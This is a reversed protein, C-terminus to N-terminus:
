AGGQLHPNAPQYPKTHFFGRDPLEKIEEPTLIWVERLQGGAARTYRVMHTQGILTGSLVMFNQQNRIRTGPALMQPEGDIAIAPPQGFSMRGFQSDAPFVRRVQQQAQVAVPAAALFLASALLLFAPSKPMRKMM